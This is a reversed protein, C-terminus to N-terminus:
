FARNRLIKTSVQVKKYIIERGQERESSKGCSACANERRGGEGYSFYIASKLLRSCWFPLHVVGSIGVGRAGFIICVQPIVKVIAETSRLVILRYQRDIITQCYQINTTNAYTTLIPWGKRRCLAVGATM